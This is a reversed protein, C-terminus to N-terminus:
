TVEGVTFGAEALRERARELSLGIVLPVESPPPPPGSSVTVDVRTGKPVYTGAEPVQSIVRGAAVDQHFGTDQEGFVLQARELELQGERLTDNFLDPVTVMERGLSIVARVTSNIKRKTGAPPDQEIVRNYEVLDDYRKVSSDLRLHNQRMLSEAEPLTRGVIDPVTVEEVNIWDQFARLAFALTASILVLAVVVAALVRVQRGSKAGAPNQPKLNTAEGASGFPRTINLDDPGEGTRGELSPKEDRLRSNGDGVTGARLLAFKFARASAWRNRPNKDLARLVARELQKPVAPNIAGPPVPREHIHKLAVAVATDGQFPLRGTLMEYMVVGLSYLDSAATAAEGRAQEPSTYNVTGLVTGAETLGTASVAHAIGFDAVKVRGDATVLINHPKVDRHIIGNQHAHELADLIQLGYGVARDVPLAGERRIVDYLTEGRVWEMVIYNSGEDEGVDYVNVISPHSLGAASQAERRFRERFEEDSAYQARLVKVAVIRNLLTDRARYVIAMGGEGVTELLYYRRGLLGGTM